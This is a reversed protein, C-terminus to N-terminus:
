CVVVAVDEFLRAAASRTTSRAPCSSGTRLALLCHTTPRTCTEKRISGGRKPDLLVIGADSGVALAGKRPYPGMIKAANSSVLAVFEELSFGRERVMQTYMLPLRPEADPIEVLPTTSAAASLDRLQGAAPPLTHATACSV